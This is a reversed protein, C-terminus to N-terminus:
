SNDGELEDLLRRIEALEGASAKKTTLAHMVLKQASGGFVRDVLDGVIRRQASEQTPVATYVHAREADNRTVLGKDHMIQMFKLVTTYGMSRDRDRNLEDHVERVTSAGRQWLVRLIALEAETPRPLPNRENM